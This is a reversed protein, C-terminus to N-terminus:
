RCSFSADLYRNLKCPQTLHFRDNWLNNLNNVNNKDLGSATLEVYYGCHSNPIQANTLTHTRGVKRTRAM